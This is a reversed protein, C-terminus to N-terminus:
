RLRKDAWKVFSALRVTKEGEDRGVRRYTVTSKSNPNTRDISLVERDEMSYNHRYVGGEIIEFTNM